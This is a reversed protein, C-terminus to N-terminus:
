VTIPHADFSDCKSIINKTYNILNLIHVHILILNIDIYKALERFIPNSAIYHSVQNDHILKTSQLDILRLKSYFVLDHLNM